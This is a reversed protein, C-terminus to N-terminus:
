NTKFKRLAKDLEAAVRELQDSADAVNSALQAGDEAFQSINISNRSIHEAVMSQQNASSAIQDNVASIRQVSVDIQNLASGTEGAQMVSQEAISQSQTMAEVAQHASQQLKSIMVQIEQTSEATRFALERVSDAVVAFGRGQEGARAAEIAANLALLNIQDAIGRIVNVVGIINASDSNLQTIVDSSNKVNQALQNIGQVTRSVVNLGNNSETQALATKNAAEIALQAVNQVSQSLTTISGMVQAIETTERYVLSSNQQALEKLTKSQQHFVSGLRIVRAILERLSDIFENITTGLNGLEDQFGVPIKQSLDGDENILRLIFQRMNLIPGVIFKPILLAMAIAILACVALLFGVVYRSHIVAEESARMLGESRANIIEKLAYIHTRMAEFAQNGDKFSIEIATTRGERTNTSRAKVVNQTLQEWRDAAASYADYEASLESDAVAKRFGLLKERAAALSKAHAQTAQIFEASEPNLFLLSREQALVKHVESDAELLDNAATLNVRGLLKIHQDILALQVLT